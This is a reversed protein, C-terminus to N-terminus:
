KAGVRRKAHKIFQARIFQRTGYKKVADDHWHVGKIEVRSKELNRIMRLKKNGQYREWIGIPRDGGKPKGMFFKSGGDFSGLQNMRYRRAISRQISKSTRAQLTPIPIRQGQAKITGGYNQIALYPSISSTRSHM